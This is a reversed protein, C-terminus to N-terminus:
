SIASLQSRPTSGLMLERKLAARREPEECLALARRLYVDAERRRNRRAAFTGLFAFPIDLHRRDSASLRSIWNWAAVEAGSPDDLEALKLQCRILTATDKTRDALAAAERLQSRAREPRGELLLLEGLRMTHRARAPGTSGAIRERILDTFTPMSITPSAPATELQRLRAVHDPGSPGSLRESWERRRGTVLGVIVNHGPESNLPALELPLFFGTRSPASDANVQILYVMVLSTTADEAFIGVVHPAEGNIARERALTSALESPTSGAEIVVRSLPLQWYDHSENREWWVRGLRDLLVVAVLVSPHQPVARKLPVVENM